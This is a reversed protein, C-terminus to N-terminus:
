NNKIEEAIIEFLNPDNLGDIKFFSIGKLNLQKALEIKQKVSQSDSFTVIHKGDTSPYIFFPEGGLSREIVVNNKNAKDVAEPYSVSKVRTYHYGTSTKELGFEWGYTPVGLVLKESDIYQMGYRMVSEVWRIDANPASPIESPDNFSKKMGNTQFVQDYAMIRVSDCVENLVLFDNAFSMAQTGTWDIPPNDETRAEVTCSITKGEVKLRQSLAKLFASFLDRDVMDKGEYDIDVGSFNNEALMASIAEIHKQLKQTDSFIQHMAMEDTWLITPIIEVKERQAEQKLRVWSSNKINATDELSGDERVGFAFPNIEEFISLNGSLSDVGGERSWYPLWGSIFFDKEGSLAENNEKNKDDQAVSKNQANNLYITKKSPHLGYFIIGTVVVLIVVLIGLLYKKFM